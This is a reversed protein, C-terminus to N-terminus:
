PKLRRYKERYKDYLKTHRSTLDVRRGQIFAAEVQTRIDLPDGTTIILTADKGPELSGIRDDVGFIRAPSLTIARLAEDAPLGYAAARGAHYPLSREHAAEEQSIIAFRIGAEHLKRPLAFPEEHAEFRRAPLRHIGGALVPIDKAKLLAAVRWADHGGGIILRLSEAEAWAVAAEIQQVDYAWVVVPLRRELASLLAEWRLDTRFSPSGGAQKATRYARADRFAGTLEAIRRDREARQEEESQRIWPARTITMSPWNVYLASPARLTMEEWTWGDLHLVAGTGAILGGRPASVATLIGNARTVPILESEPNVAVEARVNPNLAGTERMDLSARVAGIETLGLHSDGSMLGPYVHKGEARILEAGAPVAAGAGLVTIKGRDFVITGGPVPPGSVPHLTAGVIAIPRTQPVGPVQDSAHAGTVAALLTLLLMTRPIM